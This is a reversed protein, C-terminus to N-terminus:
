NVDEASPISRVFWTTSGDKTELITQRTGLLFGHSPDDPVFSIDLLVVGPDIHLGVREWELLPSEAALAAPIRPLLLLSAAAAMNAFPGRRIPSSPSLCARPFLLIARRRSTPRLLHLAPSTTTATTM